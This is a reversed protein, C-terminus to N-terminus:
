VILHNPLPVLQVSEQESPDTRAVIALCPDTQSRNYPLHPVGAPIYVFDGAKTIVHERLDDGYWMGAEGSLVYIATEHQDHRHPQARGGPPINLLHMCLRQSGVTEAAIGTFYNFGQKGAHTAEGAHIVACGSLPAPKMKVM